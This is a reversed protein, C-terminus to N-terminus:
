EKMEKRHADIGGAWWIKVNEPAVTGSQLRKREKKCGDCLSVGPLPIETKKYFIDNDPATGCLFAETYM